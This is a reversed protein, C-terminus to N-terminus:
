VGAIDAAAGEPDEIMGALVDGDGGVNIDLEADNAFQQELFIAQAQETLIDFCSIPEDLKEMIKGKHQKFLELTKYCFLPSIPCEPINRFFQLIQERLANGNLNGANHPQEILNKWAVNWSAAEGPGANGERYGVELELMWDLLVKRGNKDFKMFRERTVRLTIRRGTSRQQFYNGLLNNEEHQLWTDLDFNM